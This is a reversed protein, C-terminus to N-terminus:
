DGPQAQILEFCECYDGKGSMIGRYRNLGQIAEHFPMGCTQTKHMQLAETKLSMFATIDRCYGVRSLPTWVEYGLITRVQWPETGCEPFWPGAARRCGEVVLRYTELHDPIAEGSHPTYVVTPKKDRLSAVIWDLNEQSYQLYGDPNGLFTIEKIGLVAAANQAEAERVLALEQPTHQLSGAEGSTLYVISVEDGSQIHHAISGGCGIIDDDPHPAFVMITAM